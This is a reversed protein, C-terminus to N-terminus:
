SVMVFFWLLLCLASIIFFSSESIFAKITEWAERRKLRRQAYQLWKEDRDLPSM